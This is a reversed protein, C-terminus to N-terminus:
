KSVCVIAPRSEGIGGHDHRAAVVGEGEVMVVVVVVAAGTSSGGTAPSWLLVVVGQGSILM